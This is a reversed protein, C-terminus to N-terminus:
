GAKEIKLSILIIGSTLAAFFMGVWPLQGYAFGNSIALAGVLAGIAIGANAASSVLTSALEPAKAAGALIRNVIASSPLFASIGFLFLVVSLVYLNTSSLAVVVYTLAQLPLSIALTASLNWDALRGGIMSGTTAGAGFLFLMVPLAQQSIAAVEALYPAIFTYFSWFGVLMTAFTLYTMLVKQNALASFQASLPQREGEANSDSPITAMIGAAAIIAAGGVVWFTARWGFWNGIATGFPVGLINAVSIGAFIWAIATGSKNVPVLSAAVILAIGYFSGHSLSVVLRGVMLMGYGPALACVVHGAIFIGMLLLLNRKRAFKAIALTIIPGGIAVGIAYVSILYGAVPISVSLDASIEPLLGAIVFETTGICFAALFLVYVAIPM